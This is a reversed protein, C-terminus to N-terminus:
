GKPLTIAFECLEDGKLLSRVIEIKVPLGTAGEWQQRYWGSGCYCFVSPMGKDLNEQILPCFCYAKMKEELTKSKEFGEPDRPNKASYITYGERRAGEGWGPDNDMFDIVADVSELFDGGEREKELFVERLKAIQSVPFVHACRSLIEFCRDDEAVMELNTVTSHVWQFREALSSFVTLAERGPTVQSAAEEGLVRRLHNELLREWPHIVFQIEVEDLNEPDLYIEQCFEDSIIGREAAWAFLTQYSSGLEAIPGEHVLTLVERGPLLRALDSLEGYAERVPFCIEVDFGDTVSTVFQIICFPPGTIVEEPLDQKLGLFLEPLQNRDGLKMKRFAIWTQDVVGYKVQDCNAM